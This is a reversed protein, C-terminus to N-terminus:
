HPISHTLAEIEFTSVSSAFRCVKTALQWCGPNTPLMLETYSYESSTSGELLQLMRQIRVTAMSREDAPSASHSNDTQLDSVRMQLRFTESAAGLGSSKSHKMNRVPVDVILAKEAPQFNFWSATPYALSIYGVVQGYENVGM